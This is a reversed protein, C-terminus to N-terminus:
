LSKDPNFGYVKSTQTNALNFTRSSAWSVPTRQLFILWDSEVVPMWDYHVPKRSTALMFGRCLVVRWISQPLWSLCRQWLFRKSNDIWVRRFGPCLKRGILTLFHPPLPEIYNNLEETVNDVMFSLRKSSITGHIHYHISLDFQCLAITASTMCLKIVKTSTIPGISLGSQYPKSPLFMDIKGIFEKRKTNIEIWISQHYVPDESPNFDTQGGKKYDNLYKLSFQIM